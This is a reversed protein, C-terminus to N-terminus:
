RSAAHRPARAAKAPLREADVLARVHDRLRTASVDGPALDAGIIAINARELVVAQPLQSRALCNEPLSGLVSPDVGSGLSLLLRYPEYGAFAKLASEVVRGGHGDRAGVSVYILMGPVALFETLEQDVGGRYANM